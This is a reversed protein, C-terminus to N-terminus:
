PTPFDLSVLIMFLGFEVGCVASRIPVGSVNGFWFLPMTLYGPAVERSDRRVFCDTVVTM